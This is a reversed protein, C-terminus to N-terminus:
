LGDFWWCIMRWRVSSSKVFPDIRCQNCLYKIIQHNTPSSLLLNHLYKGVGMWQRMEQPIHSPIHLLHSLLSFENMIRQHHPSDKFYIAIHLHDLSLFTLVLPCFPLIFTVLLYIAIWPSDCWIILLIHHLQHKHQKWKSPSPTPGGGWIWSIVLWLPWPEMVVGVMCVCVCSPKMFYKNSAM